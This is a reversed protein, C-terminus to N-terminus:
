YLMRILSCYLIQKGTQPPGSRRRFNGPNDSPTDFITRIGVCLRGSMGAFHKPFLEERGHIDTLTIEASAM